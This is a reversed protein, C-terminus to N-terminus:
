DDEAESEDTEHHAVYKAKGLMRLYEAWNAKMERLAPVTYKIHYLTVEFARRDFPADKYASVLSVLEAPAIHKLFHYSM